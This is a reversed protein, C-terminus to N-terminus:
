ALHGTGYRSFATRLARQLGAEGRRAAAYGQRLNGRNVPMLAVEMSRGQREILTTALATATERTESLIPGGGPGKLDLAFPQADSEARMVTALTEFTVSLACRGALQLIVILGM